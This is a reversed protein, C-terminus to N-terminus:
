TKISYIIKQNQCQDKTKIWKKKFKISYLFNVCKHHLHLEITRTHAINKLNADLIKLYWVLTENGPKCVSLLFMYLQGYGKIICYVFQCFEQLYSSRNQQFIQYLEYKIMLFLNLSTESFILFLGKWCIQMISMRLLFKGRLNWIHGSMLRIESSSDIYIYFGCM